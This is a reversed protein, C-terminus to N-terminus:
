PEIGKARLVRRAAAAWFELGAAAAPATVAVQKLDLADLMHFLLSLEPTFVPEATLEPARSTM